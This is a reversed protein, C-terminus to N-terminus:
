RDDGPNLTLSKRLSTVFVGSEGGNERFVLPPTRRLLGNMGIHRLEISKCGAQANKMM